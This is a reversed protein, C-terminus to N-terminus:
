FSREGNETPTVCFADDDPETGEDTRNLPPGDGEANFASTECCLNSSNDRKPKRPYSRAWCTSVWCPATELNSPLNKKHTSFLRLKSHALAKSSETLIHSRYLDSSFKVVLIVMEHSWQLWVFRKRIKWKQKILHWCNFAKLPWM